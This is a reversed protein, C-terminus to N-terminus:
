SSRFMVLMHGGGDSRSDKGATNSLRPELWQVLNPTNRAALPDIYEPTM